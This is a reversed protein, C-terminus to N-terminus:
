IVVGEDWAQDWLLLLRQFALEKDGRVPLGPLARKTASCYVGFMRGREYSWQANGVGKVYVGGYKDPDFAKGDYGDFVGERFTLSQPKEM